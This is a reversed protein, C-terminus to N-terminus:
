NDVEIATPLHGYNDFGEDITQSYEMICDTDDSNALADDIADEKSPAKVTKTCVYVEYWTVTYSKCECYTVHSECSECTNGDSM